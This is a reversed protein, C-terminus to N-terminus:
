ILNHSGVWGYWFNTAADTLLAAKAHLRPVLAVVVGASGVKALAEQKDRQDPWRTFLRVKTGRRAARVMRQWLSGEYDFFPAAVDLRGGLGAAAREFIEHLMAGYEVKVM